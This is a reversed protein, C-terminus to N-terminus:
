RPGFNTPSSSQITITSGPLLRLDEKGTLIVSGAGVGGGIVAGIAAGKGGGAIAGIIAGLGAGVGGRKATEKTQSDGKAAGETDIKIEKGTNDRINQLNGAFEFVRGDRLTIKEFNFVLNSQGAIKGSSKVGTLYGDIVAGRFEDPSQVTMRFRDNNQTVKTNIENDLVSTIVVGNPVIFDGQRSTAVNPTGTNPRNPQDNDSYGGFTQDTNDIGLRAVSDSKNYVSEAFITQRLYETTIRRSVKLGRGDSISTFTITYDTEGGLSSVTLTQGSITARLRVTSGSASQEVKDRGDATFNVPSANSTALTVQDGRIDIAIQEPAALKERLEERQSAGLSTDAIIDDLNESRERDIDYTGALGVSIVNSTPPDDRTGRSNGIEVWNNTVGYNASLRDIQARTGAWADEVTRNQPSLKMFENVRRAAAVIQQVDTRNERRRDYNAQFRAIEDRLERIRMNVDDVDRTNVSGSRLQYRLNMEFDDLRSNLARMADRIQRDDRRQAQMDGALPILFAIAVAIALFMYRSSNM